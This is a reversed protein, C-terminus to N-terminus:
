SCMRNETCLIDWLIRGALRNNGKLKRFGQVRILRRIKFLLFVCVAKLETREQLSAPMTDGVNSGVFLDSPLPTRQGGEEPSLVPGFCAAGGPDDFM